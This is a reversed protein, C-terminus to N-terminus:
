QKSFFGTEGDLSHYSAFLNGNHSMHRCCASSFFWAVDSVELIQHAGESADKVGSGGIM